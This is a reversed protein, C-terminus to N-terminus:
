YVGYELATDIFVQYNRETKPNLPTNIPGATPMIVFRGDPKGARMMRITERRVQEPTGNELLKLQMSGFLTIKHGVRQKLEGLTTDGDPIEECPDVADCGTDVIMDIVQGIKGHSHIRVPRGYQHILSVMETLYPLMFREFYKPPLYPPCMYEPGYIRYIDAPATQIMRKLNEMNRRHFEKVVTEFHETETMVWVLSEGFEMMEMALYAPDGLSSLILGHDGVEGRIRELDDSQYTVPEYPLSMIADVDETDKCIHETNWTTHIGNIVRAASTLTRNGVQVTKITEYGDTREHRTTSFHPDFASCAIKVNSAPNWLCLCDTKQRVVEMLNEYSPEQNYFCRSNYGVLEHCSIPVRDPIGGNLTLSLRERSTM